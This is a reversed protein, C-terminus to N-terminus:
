QIVRRRGIVVQGHVGQPVDRDQGCLGGCWSVLCHCSSSIDRAGARVRVWCRRLYWYCRVGDARISETHDVSSLGGLLDLAYMVDAEKGQKKAEEIAKQPIEIKPMLYMAGDAPQCSMGPLQNFKEVM